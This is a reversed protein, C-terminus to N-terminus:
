SAPRFDPDKLTIMYDVLEKVQEPEIRFEMAEPYNHADRLFTALTQESLGQRNVIDAFGPAQPDPSISSADLAHCQACVAQAFAPPQAPAVPTTAVEGGSGAPQCAAVLLALAPVLAYKM